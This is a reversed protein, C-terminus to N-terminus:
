MEKIRDIYLTDETVKCGLALIKVGAKKADELAEGFEPHTDVNAYVENVGEMQIV